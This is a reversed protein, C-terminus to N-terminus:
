GAGRPAGPGGVQGHAPGHDAHDLGLEGFLEDREAGGRALCGGMSDMATLRGLRAAPSSATASARDMDCSATAEVCRAPERGRACEAPAPLCARVAATPM